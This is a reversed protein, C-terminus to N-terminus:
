KMIVMRRVDVFDGTILKYFYVGSSLRAADFTVSYTGAKQQDNVLSAVEQGLVDYVKLWVYSDTPLAYRILTTPNFPNPYNQFLAFSKPKEEASSQGITKSKSSGGSQTSILYLSYPSINVSKNAVQFSFTGTSTPTFRVVETPHLGTSQQILGGAADFSLLDLDVEDPVELVGTLQTTSGTATLTQSVVSTPNVSGASLTSIETSTATGKIEGGRIVFGDVYIMDRLAGEPEPIDNLVNLRFTHEGPETAFSVFQGFTLDKKGSNDPNAPDSPPRFFDVKGRSVNDIFVEANGGRPGRAIQMDVGTGTFTFSLFAGSNEKKAGVNRCYHGNSAREDNVDHWGGKRSIGPDDCEVKSVVPKQKLSRKTSKTFFTIASTFRPDVGDIITGAYAINAFGENDVTLSSYEALERTGSPCGSGRVCIQGKHIVGGGQDSAIDLFIDPKDSLANEIQAYIIKWPVKNQEFEPSDADGPVDTGYWIAAVKGPDGGRIWPFVTTTTFEFGPVKPANMPVPKTWNAQVTADKGAPLSMLYVNHRDGFAIHLNNGKDATIIPFTNNVTLTGAGHFIKGVAFHDPSFIPVDTPGIPLDCPGDGEKPCRYIYLDRGDLSVFSGYLIGDSTLAINGAVEDPVGTQPDQVFSGKTFTAGDDSQVVFVDHQGEILQVLKRLSMYLTKEGRAVNWQRDLQATTFPNPVWNEGRDVSVSLTASGLWLSTVYIRGTSQIGPSAPTPPVVFFPDGLALDVDGGGVGGEPDEGVPNPNQTGDPQGLYQFSAGGNDSRWFDVGGPVGRIAGIYITGFPDIEIEPEVDQDIFILSREQEPLKLDPTFMFDFLQYNASRFVVPPEPPTTVLSANGTYSENVVSFVLVQVRYVDPTATFSDQEFNTAGQGSQAVQVGASNFVRMDFDNTPSLWDIRVTIKHINPDTGTVTLFFNDCQSNNCNASLPNTTVGTFPGGTWTTSPNTPSVTGSSPTAASLIELSFATLVLLSVFFITYFYKM